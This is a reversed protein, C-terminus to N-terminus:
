GLVLPGAQWNIRSAFLLQSVHAHVLQVAIGVHLPRPILAAAFSALPLIHEPRLLPALLVQVSERGVLRGGRHLRVIARHALLRMMVMSALVHM